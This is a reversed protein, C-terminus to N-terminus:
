GGERKRKCSLQLTRWAWTALYSSFPIKGEDKRFRKRDGVVSIEIIVIVLSFFLYTVELSEQM